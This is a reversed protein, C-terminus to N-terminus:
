RGNNTGRVITWQFVENLLNVEGEYGIFFGVTAVNCEWNNRKVLGKTRNDGYEDIAASGCAQLTLGSIGYKTYRMVPDVTDFPDPYSNIGRDGDGHGTFTYRYLGDTKLSSEIQESSVDTRFQVMFGSTRYTNARAANQRQWVSIINWPIRDIFRRRGNDYVILNPISYKKCTDPTADETHAWLKYDAVDLRVKSALDQFTDTSSTARATAFLGGDRKIEWACGYVDYYVSPSNASFLYLNEGGIEEIPDRNLWRGLDPRYFRRKYGVMDTERDHYQTSFGFSFVDALPGSSETINGYPDYTYQAAIAGTESVCLVINGNHDYCPIYFIGDMSVALLGGVGGAGQETGSKDMGWYYEFTRISGDAFEVKELIINNSDWVFTHTELTQWEDTGSPPAPPPASTSHLRQVTKRIRRNRHDYANLVRLAGNTLSRSTVSRLQDEADYAYAWIGDSSLGGDANHHITRPSAPSCLSTTIQNLNNHTYTNTVANDGFLLHNGIDDYVHTFHNTGIAASLVESRDNYAFTSDVPSVGTTGITRVTPRSAPVQDQVRSTVDDM